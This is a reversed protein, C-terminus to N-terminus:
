SAQTTHGANLGAKDSNSTHCIKNTKHTYSSQESTTMEHFYETHDTMGQNVKSNQHYM